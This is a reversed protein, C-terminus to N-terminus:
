AKSIGQAQQRLQGIGHDVLTMRKQFVALSSGLGATAGQLDRLSERFTAIANSQEELAAALSRLAIRLRVSPDRAPFAHIEASAMSEAGDDTVM